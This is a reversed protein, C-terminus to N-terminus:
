GGAMCLTYDDHLQRRESHHATMKGTWRDVSLAAEIVISSTSSIQILPTIATTM